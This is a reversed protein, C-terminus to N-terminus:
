MTKRDRDKNKRGPQQEKKVARGGERERITVSSSDSHQPFNLTKAEEPLVACQLRQLGELVFQPGEPVSGCGPATCVECGEPHQLRTGDFRTAITDLFTNQPALLGKMVPM